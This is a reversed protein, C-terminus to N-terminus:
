NERTGAPPAEPTEDLPAPAEARPSVVVQQGYRLDISDVARGAKKLEPLLTLFNRFREAFSAHGFHLQLTEQNRALMAKVDDADALDVESVLWGAASAQDTVEHMFGSFLTLRAAREAPGSATELGTVVPFSFSAREPKELLVGNRDVLKIRRGLQVFAVPTREELHVALRNPYARTLTAKEVWPILELQRCKEEMSMKLINIGSSLRGDPPLGLANLAEERSVYQNGTLVVDNASTLTFEPSTFGFVALRYGGYGMPTVIVGLWLAWRLVRKLRPLRGRRVPVARPRRRFPSEKEAMSDDELTIDDLDETDM